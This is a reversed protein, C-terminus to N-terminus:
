ARVRACLAIRELLATVFFYYGLLKHQNLIDLWFQRRNLRDISCSDQSIQVCSRQHISADM